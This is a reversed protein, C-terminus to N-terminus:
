CFIIFLNYFVFKWYDLLDLDERNVSYSEFGM